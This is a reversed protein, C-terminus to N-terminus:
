SQEPAADIVTAIADALRVLYRHTQLLLVSTAAATFAPEQASDISGRPHIGYNRLDRLYAAHAQLENATAKLRGIRRMLECVRDIVQVTRDDDLAKALGNNRDRLQEGAAYWAGESVAGLLNATSLYLGQRHATLAEELCRLTRTDLGLADLDATFIDVDGLGHTTDGAIAMYGSALEPEDIEFRYGGQRHHDQVPISAYRNRPDEVPLVAGQRALEALAIRAAHQNRVRALTPDHPDPTWDDQRPWPLTLKEQRNGQRPISDTDNLVHLLDTAMVGRGQDALTDLILHKARIIDGRDPTAAAEIQAAYHEGPQM